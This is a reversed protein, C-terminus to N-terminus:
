QMANHFTKEDQIPIELTVIRDPSDNRATIFFRDSDLNLLLKSHEIICDQLRSFTLYHAKLESAPIHIYEKDISSNCLIILELLPEAHMNDDNRIKLNLMM